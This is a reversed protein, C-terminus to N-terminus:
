GHRHDFVAAMPMNKQPFLINGAGTPDGWLGQGSPSRAGVHHSGAKRAPLLFGENTSRGRPRGKRTGSFEGSYTCVAAPALAGKPAHCDKPHPARQKDALPYRGILLTKKTDDSIGSLALHCWSIQAHAGPVRRLVPGMSKPSKLPCPAFHHSVASSSCM